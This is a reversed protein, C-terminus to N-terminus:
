APECFLDTGGPADGLAGLAPPKRQTRGAFAREAASGRDWMKRRRHSDGRSVCVEGNGNCIQFRRRRRRMRFLSLDAEDSAGCVVAVKGRSVPMARHFKAREKSRFLTTYPFLTSRPPRRIM